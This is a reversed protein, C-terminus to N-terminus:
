PQVAPVIHVKWGVTEIERRTIGMQEFGNLFAQSALSKCAVGVQLLSDGPYVTVGIDAVGPYL